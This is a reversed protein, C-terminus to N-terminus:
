FFGRRGVRRGLKNMWGAFFFRTLRTSMKNIITTISKITALYCHRMDNHDAWVGCLMGSDRIVLLM